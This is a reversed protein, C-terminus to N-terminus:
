FIILSIVTIIERMIGDLSVGHKSVWTKIDQLKKYNIIKMITKWFFLIQRLSFFHKGTTFHEIIGCQAHSM